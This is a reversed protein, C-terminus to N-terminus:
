FRYRAGLTMAGVRDREGGEFKLDHEDYQLVASWNPSFTYEAGLGYSVAFENETGATIGTGAAASVETRGFTTGLKGLLNFSPGLPLRGLLSLNVGQAKTEGGARKITGFRTYGLELGVNQHFFRGTHVSYATDKDDSGFPGIGRNLSFDSQGVNLSVYSNGTGFLSYRNSSSSMDNQAQAGAVAGLSAAAVAVRTLFSSSKKM